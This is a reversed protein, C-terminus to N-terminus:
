ANTAAVLLLVLVTVASLVGYVSFLVAARPLLARLRGGYVQKLAFLCYLPLVATPLLASLAKPLPLLLAGFLLFTFAHVHLSFVLHAGYVMRRGLYLLKLLLAFVPMLLFVGYPAYRLAQRLLKEIAAQPDAKYETERTQLAAIWKRVRPDDDDSATIFYAHPKKAEAKGDASQGPAAKAAQQRAAPQVAQPKEQTVHVRSELGFVSVAIFFLFSITLYLQLPKVFSQRRGALFASTLRGPHRVLLWLSRVLKGELAVYHHLYEHVFEWLTPTEVHGHQGCQACYPGTLQAGCNACLSVAFPADGAVTAVASSAAPVAAPVSVSM